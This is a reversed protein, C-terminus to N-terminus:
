KCDCHEKHKCKNVSGHLDWKQGGKSMFIFCLRVPLAEFPRELSVFYAMSEGLEGQHVNTINYDQYSSFVKHNLISEIDKKANPFMTKDIIKPSEAKALGLSLVLFFFLLWSRM